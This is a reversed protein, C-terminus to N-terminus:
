RETNIFYKTIVKDMELRTEKFNDNIIVFDFSDKKAIEFPAKEMRKNIVEVSDKGRKILRERLVELSPPVLLIICATEGFIKKLNIAGDVDLDFVGILGKDALREVESKLTGYYSGPYVEEWEAFLKDDIKKKFEDVLIFYYDKGDVEGERKPRTTASISFSLFPYKELLYHCLRGKGSGSPGAIALVKKM